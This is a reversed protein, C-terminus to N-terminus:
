KVKVKGGNPGNVGALYGVFRDHNFAPNASHCFNALHEVQNPTFPECYGDTDKLYDALKIFHKKTM